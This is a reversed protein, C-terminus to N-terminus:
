YNFTTGTIRNFNQQAVDATLRVSPVLSRIDDMVIYGRTKLTTEGTIGVPVDTYVKHWTLSGDSAVLIGWAMIAVAFSIVMLFSKSEMMRTMASRLGKFPSRQTDTKKSPRSNM